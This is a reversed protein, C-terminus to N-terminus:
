QQMKTLDYKEVKIQATNVVKQNFGESGVVANYFGEFEDIGDPLFERPSTSYIRINKSVGCAIVDEIESLEKESIKPGDTFHRHRKELLDRIVQINVPHNEHVIYHYMLIFKIGKRESKAFYEGYKETFATENENFLEKAEESFQYDIVTQEGGISEYFMAVTISRNFDLEGLEERYFKDRAILDVWENKDITEVYTTDSSINLWEMLEEKSVMRAGGKDFHIDYENETSIELNTIDLAADRRILDVPLLFNSIYPEVSNGIRKEEKSGELSISFSFGGLNDFESLILNQCISEKLDDEKQVDEIQDDDGCASFLIISALFFYLKTNKMTQKNKIKMIRHKTKKM